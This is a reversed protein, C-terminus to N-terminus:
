GTLLRALSMGLFAALLGLANSAAIYAGMPLYAGQQGLALAEVGYTSFTTYAGLFGVQLFLRVQPSLTPVRALVLGALVGALLCGTLNILLTAWPFAMGLWRGFLGQALFRIIAGLAGGAGVILIEQV